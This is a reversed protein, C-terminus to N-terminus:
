SAGAPKDGEVRKWTSDPNFVKMAKATTATALGLDKQFVVGDHNVLFTMVGSNGYQAPYAVLAFGGMMKGHAVLYDYAGGPADPGQATLIRYYYGHYPAPKTGGKLAYGEARARAFLPGIPSEEEGPKTDWYLGDRKGPTSTFKRAYELLSDHDPDRRYYERQADVYTLCSQITALENAGIRRNLIEEKGADTDFRWGADSKVLPIPFRWDDKGTQLVAKDDGTEVLSHADEYSHLFRERGERDAVADGSNILPRASSGLVALLAQTNNAKVATLLANVAAEPTAFSQQHTAAAFVTGTPFTALVVTLVIAAARRRAVRNTQIARMM